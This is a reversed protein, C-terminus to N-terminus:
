RGKQLSHLGITNKLIEWHRISGGTYCQWIAMENCVIPHRGKLELLLLDDELQQWLERNM